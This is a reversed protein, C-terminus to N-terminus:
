GQNSDRKVEFIEVSWSPRDGDGSLDWGGEVDVGNDEALRVLTDLQERFEDDDSPGMESPKVETM